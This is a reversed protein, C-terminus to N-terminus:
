RTKIKHTLDRHWIELRYYVEKQYIKSPPHDDKSHHTVMRLITPSWGPSQPQGDM